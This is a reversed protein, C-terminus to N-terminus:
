QSALRYTGREGINAPGRQTNLAPKKSIDFDSYSKRLNDNAAGITMGWAEIQHVRFASMM